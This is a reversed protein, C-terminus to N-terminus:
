GQDWNNTIPMRRDKGFAKPTIRIGPPGQRRKYENRDVTRAVRRVVDVDIGRAAIEAISRDEEVYAELVRDLLGYPPLSDEDKQNERLEATPPREIVSEPIPQGPGQRNRHRALAFVLTKPIDKLVAFGGAMDGYLTCYGMANESKNGTTLLLHGFKNSLAMLLTGRIRAQLNEETVDSARGAFLATLATAFAGVLPEIPITPCGIGLRKAVELADDFTGRSSFRSPMTVAHVRDTGLADVAIAATLASDIGGSLGVLVSRFGNKRVYDALGLVLARWVVDLDDLDPALPAVAPLPAAAAVRMRPVEVRHLPPEPADTWTRRAMPERLRRRRAPSLDVDVVLLDEAFMAGSAIVRGQEDFVASGGDFVLEDQGGVLNVFVLPVSHDAARAALMTRRVHEKGRHYPSASINVALLANGSRVQAVLPGDPVWIDECVSIGIPLEGLVLLTPTEGPAFYREEDFVGYNPLKVKRGFGRVEGDSLIAAANFVDDALLATGVIATLGRTSEALRALSDRAEALFDTRLVLDEPPYGTLAMEPFVVLEAGAARAEAIAAALRERNRDLAGVTTNVQALAVRLRM